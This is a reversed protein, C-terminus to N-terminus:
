ERYRSPLNRHRKRIGCNDDIEQLPIDNPNRVESSNLEADKANEIFETDRPPNNEDSFLEVMDRKRVGPRTSVAIPADANASVFFM